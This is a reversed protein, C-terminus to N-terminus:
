KTVHFFHWHLRWKNIHSWTMVIAWKNNANTKIYETMKHHIKCLKYEMSTLRILLQLKNNDERLVLLHAVFEANQHRSWANRFWPELHCFYVDLAKTDINASINANTVLRMKVTYVVHQWYLSICRAFTRISIFLRANDSILSLMKFDISHWRKLTTV